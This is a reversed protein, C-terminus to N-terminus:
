TEIELQQPQNPNPIVYHVEPSIGGEVVEPGYGEIFLTVTESSYNYVLNRITAGPPLKLIESLAERSITTHCRRM